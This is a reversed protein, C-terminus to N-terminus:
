EIIKGRCFKEIKVLKGDWVKVDIDSKKFFEISEETSALWDDPIKDQWKKDIIIERIGAQHIVIACPMCPTFFIYMKCDNTSVGEIAAGAIANLEAHITHALKVERGQSLIAEDDSGAPFGNYGTSIVRNRQNVIVAGVRTSPDKSKAAAVYALSMFYDDWGPRQNSM